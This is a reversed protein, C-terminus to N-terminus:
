NRLLMPSSSRRLKAQWLTPSLTMLASSRRRTFGIAFIGISLYQRMRPIGLTALEVLSKLLIGSRTIVIYKDFGKPCIEYTFHVHYMQPQFTQKQYPDKFQSLAELNLVEELIEDFNM